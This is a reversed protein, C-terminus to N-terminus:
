TRSTDYNNWTALNSSSVVVDQLWFNDKNEIIYRILKAVNDVTLKPYEVDKSMLTDTWGLIVNTIKPLNEGHRHVVEHLKTKSASYKADKAQDNGFIVKSGINIVFKDLGGWSALVMKLLEIQGTVHYANNIFIDANKCADVITNQTSKVSIDYENDISFGTVCYGLDTLNNYIAQGIGSTHGTIVVNM